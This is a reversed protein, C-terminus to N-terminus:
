ALEIYYHINVHPVNERRMLLEIKTRTIAAILDLVMHGKSTLCQHVKPLMSYLTAEEYEDPYNRM